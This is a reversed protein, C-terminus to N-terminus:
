IDEEAFLTFSTPTPPIPGVQTVEETIRLGKPIIQTYIVTDADHKKDAM